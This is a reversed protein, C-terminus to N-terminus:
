HPWLSCRGDGLASRCTGLGSVVMSPGLPIQHLRVGDKACNMELSWWGIGDPPVAASLVWRAPEAPPLAWSMGKMLSVVAALRLSMRQKAKATWSCSQHKQGDCAAFCLNSVENQRRGEWGWVQSRAPRNWSSQGASHLDWLKNLEQTNRSIRKLVCFRNVDRPQQWVETRLLRQLIWLLASGQWSICPLGLTNTSGVWLLAQKRELGGQMPQTGLQCM